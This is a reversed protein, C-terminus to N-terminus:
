LGGLYWQVIGEGWVLGVLTGVVLFPGFPIPQGLKREKLGLLLVGVVAGLMFAAMLTVGMAAGLVLGLGLVLKVDGLGMGRGKTLFYLLGFFGMSGLGWGIREGWGIGDGGSVWGLIGLSLGVLLVIVVTSDPIIYHFWDIWFIVLLTSVFILAAILRALGIGEFGLEGIGSLQGGSIAWWGVGLWLGGNMLEVLPYVVSIKAKCRACKARLWIWSIVPLLEYWRLETKCAPCKSRGNVWGLERPLRYIIVNLFSGILLGFVSLLGLGYMIENHWM